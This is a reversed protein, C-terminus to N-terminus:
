FDRSGDSSDLLAELALNGVFGSAGALLAIKPEGEMGANSRSECINNEVAYFHPVLGVLLKSSYEQDARKAGSFARPERDEAFGRSFNAAPWSSERVPWERLSAQLRRRRPMPRPPSRHLGRAPTGRIERPTRRSATCPRVAVPRFVLRM